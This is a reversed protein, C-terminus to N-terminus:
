DIIFNSLDIRPVHMFESIFNVLDEEAIVKMDLLAKQFSVNETKQKVLAEDLQIHDILGQEYLLNALSKKEQRGM